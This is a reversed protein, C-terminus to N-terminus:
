CLVSTLSLTRFQTSKWVKGHWLSKLVKVAAHINTVKLAFVAMKIKINM